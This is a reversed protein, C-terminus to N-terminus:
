QTSESEEYADTVKEQSAIEELGEKDCVEM